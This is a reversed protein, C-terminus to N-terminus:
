GGSTATLTYTFEISDLSVVNIAGFVHRDWLTGGIAAQDLIGHETIAASADFTLTGVTRFQNSAPQSTTGTARTSDPNLATTSETELATDGVVAATTGTGCGHFNFEDITDASGDWADILYAVGADTIVQRSVVGYDVIEGNARILKASLTNTATLIGFRKSVLPAVWDAGVKSKLWGPRLMNRVRWSLPPVTTPLKAISAPDLNRKVRIDLDGDAGFKSKVNLTM